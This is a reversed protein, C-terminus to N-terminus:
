GQYIGMGGGVGVGLGLVCSGGQDEPAAKLWPNVELRTLGVLLCM